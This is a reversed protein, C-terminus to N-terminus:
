AQRSIKDGVRNIEEIIRARVHRDFIGMIEFVILSTLRNSPSYPVGLQRAQELKARSKQLETMLFDPQDNLIRVFTRARPSLRRLALAFSSKREAAQAPDVANEDAIVAGLADIDDHAGEPPQDLSLAFNYGSFREFDKEIWRNLHLMAGRYAYPAFPVGLSADYKNWAVCVAVWAEQRIDEISVVRGGAARLRRYVRGAISNVLKECERHDM